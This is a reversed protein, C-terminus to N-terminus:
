SIAVPFGGNVAVAGASTIAISPAGRSGGLTRLGAKDEAISLMMM